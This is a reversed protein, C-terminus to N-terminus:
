GQHRSLTTFIGTQPAYLGTLLTARSPTCAQACVYFSWFRYSTKRLWAINPCMGDVTGQQTLTLWYSPLRLQDVMIMLINPNATLNAPATAPTDATLPWGFAGANMLDTASPAPSTAAQAIEPSLNELFTGAGAAIGAALAVKEVFSRRTLSDEPQPM